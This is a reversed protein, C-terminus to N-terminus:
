AAALGWGATGYPRRAGYGRGRRRVGACLGTCAGRVGQVKVNVRSDENAEYCDFHLHPNRPELVIFGELVCEFSALWAKMQHSEDFYLLLVATPYLVMDNQALRMPKSVVSNPLRVGSSRVRASPGQPNITRKTRGSVTAPTSCFAISFKNSCKVSNLCNIDYKKSLSDLQMM